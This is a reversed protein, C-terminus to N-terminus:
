ALERSSKGCGDSRTAPAARCRHDWHPTFKQLTELLAAKPKTAAYTVGGGLVDFRNGAEPDADVDPSIESFYITDSPRGVRHLLEPATRTILGYTDPADRRAM